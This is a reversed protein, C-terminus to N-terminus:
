AQINRDGDTDSASLPSKYMGKFIYPIPCWSWTTQSFNFAPQRKLGGVRRGIKGGKKRTETPGKGGGARKRGCLGMLVGARFVRLGRGGGEVAEADVPGKREM